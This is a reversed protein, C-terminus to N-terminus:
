APKVERSVLDARIAPAIEEVPGDENPNAVGPNVAQDTEQSEVEDPVVKSAVNESLPSAKPGSSDEPVNM